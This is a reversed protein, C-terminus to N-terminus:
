SIKRRVPRHPASARATTRQSVEKEDCPTARLRSVLFRIAQLYPQIDLNKERCKQLVLGQFLAVMVRAMAEADVEPPIDGSAKLKEVLKTLTRVPGASGHRSVKLLRDSNLAEAWLQVGVRREEEQGKDSLHDFFAHSLYTLGETADPEAEAARCIEAERAHREEAIAIIIDEKSPFYNYIAGASLGAEKIIDQMTANRFGLRSFCRNAASLIQHRRSNLHEQTVKPM